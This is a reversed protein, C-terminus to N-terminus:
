HLTAAYGGKHVQAGSMRPYVNKLWPFSNLMWPYQGLLWPAKAIMALCKDATLAGSLGNLPGKCARCFADHMKNGLGRLSMELFTRPSSAGGIGANKRVLSVAAKASQSFGSAIHM